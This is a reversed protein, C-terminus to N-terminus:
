DAELDTNGEGQVYVLGLDAFCNVVSIAHQVEKHLRNAPKMEVSDLGYRVYRVILDQYKIGRLTTFDSTWPRGLSLPAVTSTPQVEDHPEIDVRSQVHPASFAQM